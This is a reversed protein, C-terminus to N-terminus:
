KWGDKEIEFRSKEEFDKVYKVWFFILVVYDLM